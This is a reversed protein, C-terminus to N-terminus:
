QTFNFRNFFREAEESDFEYGMETMAQLANEVTDYFGYADPVAIAVASRIAAAEASQAGSGVVRTTIAPALPAAPGASM